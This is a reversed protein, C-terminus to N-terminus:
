GEARWRDGGFLFVVDDPPVVARAVEVNVVPAKQVVAHLVSDALDLRRGVGRHDAVRCGHHGAVPREHKVDAHGRVRTPRKEQNVRRRALEADVVAGGAPADHAVLARGRARLVIPLPGSRAQKRRGLDSVSQAALTIGWSRPQSQTGKEAHARVNALKKRPPHLLRFHM